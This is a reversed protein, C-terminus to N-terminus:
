KMEKTNWVYRFGITEITEKFGKMPGKDEKIRKQVEKTNSWIAQLSGKYEREM